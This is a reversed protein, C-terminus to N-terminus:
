TNKLLDKRLEGLKKFFDREKVDGPLKSVERVVKRSVKFDYYTL